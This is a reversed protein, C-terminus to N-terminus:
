GFSHSFFDALRVSEFHLSAIRCLLFFPSFNVKRNKAINLKEMGNSLWFPLIKPPIRPHYM